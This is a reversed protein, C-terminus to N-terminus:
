YCRTDSARPVLSLLQQEEDAIEEAIPATPGIRDMLPLISNHVGLM